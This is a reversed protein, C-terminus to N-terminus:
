DMTSCFIVIYEFAYINKIFLTLAANERQLAAQDAHKEYRIDTVSYVYRNGEMDTFYVADGTSIERYFDYQGKQSTAGIQLTKDYVSGYLRCPQKSINGWDACVPLTSGYRPIELIGVFDTGHLSLIPMTNDRRVEPVANQPEPILMRITNVYADMKEESSRINWQWLFPLLVAIVLLCSGASICITSVIRNSQIKMADEREQLEWYM